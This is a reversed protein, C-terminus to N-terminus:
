VLLLTTISSPNEKTPAAIYTSWSMCPKLHGLKWKYLCSIIKLFTLNHLHKYYNGWKVELCLGLLRVLRSVQPIAEQSELSHMFEQRLITKWGCMFSHCLVSPEQFLVLVIISPMSILVKKFETISSSYMKLSSIPADVSAIEEYNLWWMSRLCTLLCHFTSHSRVSSHESPSYRM